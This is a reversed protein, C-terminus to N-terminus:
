LTYYHTIHIILSMALSRSQASPEKSLEYSNYLLAHSAWLWLSFSVSSRKHFLHCMGINHINLLAGLGLALVKFPVLLPASAGCPGHDCLYRFAFTCCGSCTQRCTYSLWWQHLVLGSAPLRCWYFVAELILWSCLLCASYILCLVSLIKM